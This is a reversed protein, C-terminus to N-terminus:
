SSGKTEKLQLEESGNFITGIVEEGVHLRVQLLTRIGVPRYKKKKVPKARSTQADLAFGSLGPTLKKGM